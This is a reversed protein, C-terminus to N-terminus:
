LTSDKAYLQKLPVAGFYRRSSMVRGSGALGRWEEDCDRRRMVLTYSFCVFFYCPMLAKEYQIGLSQFARGCVRLSPLEEVTKECLASFEGTRLQTSFQYM